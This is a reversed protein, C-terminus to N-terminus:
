QGEAKAIARDIKRALPGVKLVELITSEGSAKGLEHAAMKLAELLNPAAAILYANAKVESPDIDGNHVAVAIALGSHRLINVDQFYSEEAADPSVHWPGPTHNIKAM